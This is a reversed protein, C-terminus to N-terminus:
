RDMWTGMSGMSSGEMDWGMGMSGMGMSGMHAETAQMQAVMQPFADGLREQMHAVMSPWEDGMETAMESWHDAPAAADDNGPSALAASTGALLAAALAAVALTKKVM